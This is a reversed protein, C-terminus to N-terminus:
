PTKAAPLYPLVNALIKAQAAANPHVRDAQMLQPDNGVGELLFPILTLQNKQAIQEFSEYFLRSYRAGLNPPIKIGAIIVDADAQQSLDVMQQLNARLAKISFGRLGDNGGLEIMVTNPRHKTLLAPLRKLGGASTEGSISANIIQIDPRQKALLAVWGQEPKIGYAASLSDGLILLSQATSAASILCLLAALLLRQLNRTCYAM